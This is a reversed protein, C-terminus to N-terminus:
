SEFHNFSSLSNEFRAEDDIESLVEVSSSDNLSNPDSSSENNSSLRHNRRVPLVHDQYRNRDHSNRIERSDRRQSNIIAMPKSAKIEPGGVNSTGQTIVSSEQHFQTGSDDNRVIRHVDDSSFHSLITVVLHGLFM